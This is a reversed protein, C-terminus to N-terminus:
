KIMFVQDDFTEKHSIQDVLLTWDYLLSGASTNVSLQLKYRHPLTLADVARFDDFDESLLYYSEQVTNSDNAGIGIRAGIQFQYETRIHRFTSPDFYLTVKLDPSGKRQRYSVKHLQRGNIKSLGKYDLRPQQQGL